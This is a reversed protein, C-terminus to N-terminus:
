AFNRIQQKSLQSVLNRIARFIEDHRKGFHRALDTSLTTPKGGVMTIAPSIVLAHQPMLRETILSKTPRM